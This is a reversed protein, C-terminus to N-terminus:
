NVYDLGKYIQKRFPPATDVWDFDYFTDWLVWLGVTITVPLTVVALMGKLTGM